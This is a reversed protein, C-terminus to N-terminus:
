RKPERGGPYKDLMGYRLKLAAIRNNRAATRSGKARKADVSARNPWVIMRPNGFTAEKM